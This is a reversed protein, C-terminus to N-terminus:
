FFLWNNEFYEIYDFTKGNYINKINNSPNYESKKIRAERTTRVKVLNNTKLFAVMFPQKEDDGKTSVLGIEEPRIEHALFLNWYLILSTRIYQYTKELFLM